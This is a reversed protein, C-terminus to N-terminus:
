KIILNVRIWRRVVFVTGPTRGAPQMFVLPGTFIEDVCALGVVALLFM